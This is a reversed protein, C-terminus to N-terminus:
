RATKRLDLGNVDTGTHPRRVIDGLEGICHQESGAASGIGRARTKPVLENM